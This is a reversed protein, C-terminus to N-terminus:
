QKQGEQQLGEQRKGPRGRSRTLVASGTIQWGHNSLGVRKVLRVPAGSYPDKGLKYNLYSLLSFAFILCLLNLQQRLVWELFSQIYIATLGGLLGAPIMSESAARTRRLIRVCVAVHWFFWALMAVLAPIGCEAAVLLYVTEVVGDQHDPGYNLQREAREAYEYPANIKVGWNNIGVGFWPHDKIMEVACRALEQRTNASAAPATDFRQIIRPLLLFFGVAGIAAFPMIRRSLRFFGVRRVMILAPIAYAIPILAIAMRSYSRITAAGACVFALACLRGTRTTLGYVLYVSFFLPGLLQMGMAMCNQHPFVGHPQYTGGFHDRVVFGFNVYVFFALMALIAKVDGTSRLFLFLAIYFVLLMLMKWIEFWSYLMVATNALSPLCLLFYLVYLRIGVDPFFKRMWNSAAFSMIMSISLLHVLSVEMGRASGRYDEHSMFNISTPVYLCLAVVIAALVFRMWSKNIYLLFALPPVGLAAVIFVAYKM